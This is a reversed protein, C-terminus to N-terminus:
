LLFQGEVVTVCEGGLWVRDGDLRCSLHGGRPSAQFASFQNRGLRAAWFPTLAAHASGTASDEDIGAGPVFVRSVVDTASGTATVIFQDPGLAALERMDPKIARIQEESDYRFIAYGAPSRWVECPLSRLAHLAEPFGGSMTAIAPLALEYGRKARRVEIVGAHRTRFRVADREPEIGLIVHGSALTAHGCLKVECTPTFWRLDWDAHGGSRPMLFATDAFNHEAAIKQLVENEPWADLIMVAAQNGAFSRNAFADVHWYPTMM